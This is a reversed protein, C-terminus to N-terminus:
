TPSTLISHRSCEQQEGTKTQEIGASGLGQTEFTGIAAL